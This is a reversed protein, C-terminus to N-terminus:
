LLKDLEDSLLSLHSREEDAMSLFFNKAERDSSKQAMRSYLDLSQTELTMALEIIDRQNRILAEARKLFDAVRRGGEMIGPIEKVVLERGQHRERYEEMLRSKHRDEFGALRLYLEQPERDVAREALTRYFIQLGDEMAYALTAGDDYNEKGTFFDLGTEESGLAQGGDWAKIGGRLNYVETFDRGSLLQAAARSRGGVACYVIVPKNKHLEGLRSPLEKLPILRAGPLHGQEYEGPQRVDLLQYSGSEKGAMFNKAEAPTLSSSPKFLNKWNM